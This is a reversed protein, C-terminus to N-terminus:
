DAAYLRRKEEALQDIKAIYTAIDKPNPVREVRREADYICKTMAGAGHAMISTTDEMMDINYICEKGPLAYGVNELNGRMYKQRYMYYPRMGLTRASEAGLRVMTEATEAEPLPYEDLKEVLRSSRKLALTHVTLNEPALKEIEGLTRRMDDATEGPLGAIVDMNISEFGADRAMHFATRIEEPTHSRGILRLTEANMSQPNISVRGAGAERLVRLKEETITDPRGAEVTLESGFGGYASLAFDLLRKLEEATLVTPTGGGLYMSRVVRGTEQVIRAGLAIDRELAALYAAMDTKKTRVESAFSCYLCRSACFPIGIYVDVDEKKQSRLIPMQVAVIEEALALKEESVDFDERMMRVAEEAGERGTLERLLRTPRIGTLSGWPLSHGTADQMARFAAIKVARKRCRKEELVDGTVAPCEYTSVAERGFLRVEARVRWLGGDETLIVSVTNEAHETEEAPVIEERALFLRLEDAIDAFFAPQNTYLSVM